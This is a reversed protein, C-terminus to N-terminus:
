TKVTIGSENRSDIYLNPCLTLLSVIDAHGGQSAVHLATNGENDALNVDIGPLKVLLRTIALNGTMAAHILGSKV